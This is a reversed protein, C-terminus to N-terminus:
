GTKEFKSIYIRYNTVTELEQIQSSAFLSLLM